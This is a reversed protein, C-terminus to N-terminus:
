DFLHHSSVRHNQYPLLCAPMCTCAVQTSVMCGDCERALHRLYERCESWRSLGGFIEFRGQPCLNLLLLLLLLLRSQPASFM